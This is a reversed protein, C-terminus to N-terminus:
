SLIALSLASTRRDEDFMRWLEAEYESTWSGDDAEPDTDDIRVSELEGNDEYILKWDGADLKEVLRTPAILYRTKNHLSRTRVCYGAAELADQFERIAMGLSSPSPAKENPFMKRWEENIQMGYKNVIKLEAALILLKEIIETTQESRTAAMAQRKAETELVPLYLRDGCSPPISLSLIHRLFYPAEQQLRTTFEDSPIPSELEKVDIVVIRSDQDFVPCNRRRNACQIWHTSNFESMYPTAGKRHISFSPAVSWEKIRNYVM